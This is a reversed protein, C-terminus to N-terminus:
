NSLVKELVAEIEQLGFPKRLVAHELESEEYGTMFIGKLDAKEERLRRMTEFGNMGNMKLDVLAVDFTEQSVLRCAEDGTAATKVEYGLLTCTEVLLQRIAEQDDVVIIKAKTNEM